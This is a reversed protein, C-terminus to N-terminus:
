QLGRMLVIIGSLIIFLPWSNHFDFGGLHTQAILMWAGVGIMWVGGTSVDRRRRRRRAGDVDSTGPRGSRDWGVGLKDFIMLGGLLMLCFPGILRGIPVDIVGTTSLLMTAGLMLLIAGGAIAGPRIRGSEPSEPDM